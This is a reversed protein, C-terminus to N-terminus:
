FAGKNPGNCATSSKGGQLKIGCALLKPTFLSALGCIPGICAKSSEMPSYHKPLFHHVGAFPVFSKMSSKSLLWHMKQTFISANSYSQLLKYAHFMEPLFQHLIIVGEPPCLKYQQQSAIACKPYFNICECLTGQNTSMSQVDKVLFGTCMEPLVQHVYKM